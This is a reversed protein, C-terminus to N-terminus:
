ERKEGSGAKGGGARPRLVSGLIAGAVFSIAHILFSGLRPSPRPLPDEGPRTPPAGPLGALEEKINAIEAEYFQVNHEAERLDEEFISSDTGHRDTMAKLERLYSNVGGLKEEYEGLREELDERTAKM